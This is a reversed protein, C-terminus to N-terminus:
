GARRAALRSKEALYNLLETAKSELQALVTNQRNHLIAYAILAPIAAILGFATTNMAVAIGKALIEQKTAADAEAVGRFADVLGLVTGLLGLLTAVNALMALYATRKTISPYLRLAAAEMARQIERETGSAKLIGAKAVTALPHRSEANCVELAHSFKQDELLDLLHDIFQDVNLRYHVWLVYSRECIFTLGCLSVLLIPWMFAGGRQMIDFADDLM